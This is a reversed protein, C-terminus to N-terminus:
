SPQGNPQAAAFMVVQEVKASGAMMQWDEDRALRGFRARSAVKRGYHEESNLTTM